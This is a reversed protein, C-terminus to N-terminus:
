VHAPHATSWRTRNVEYIEELIARVNYKVFYRPYHSQFKSIDSIWWIHDGVRNSESYTWRTERGSIEECLKIAELM